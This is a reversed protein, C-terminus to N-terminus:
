PAELLQESPIGAKAATELMATTQESVWPSKLLMMALMPKEQVLGSGLTSTSFSSQGSVQPEAPKGASAQTHGGDRGVTGQGGPIRGTVIGDGAGGAGGAGGGSGGKMGTGSPKVIMLVTSSSRFVM